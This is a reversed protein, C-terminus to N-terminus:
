CQLLGPKRETYHRCVPTCATVSIAFRWSVNLILLTKEQGGLPFDDSVGWFCNFDDLFVSLFRIWM